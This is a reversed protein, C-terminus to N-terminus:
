NERLAGMGGFDRHLKGSNERKRKGRERNEEGRLTSAEHHSSPSWRKKRKRKV